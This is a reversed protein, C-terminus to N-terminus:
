ALSFRISSFANRGGSDITLINTTSGSEPLPRTGVDASDPYRIAARRVRIHRCHRRCIRVPDHCIGKAPYPVSEGRFFQM